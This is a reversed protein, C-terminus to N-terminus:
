QEETITQQVKSAGVNIIDRLYGQGTVMKDIMENMISEAANADVGKYWSKATLVQDIFVSINESEKQEDILARLATPKNTRNLYNKVNDAKTAFQLFDWAEETAESKKSVAELWYNAYNVSQPNGEIQPLHTISFNLKPARSQIVPLMYAYGFMMALKNQVFLDLSNDLQDNWSYVEKAPNAFDTYFRLADQGPNYNRDRFAAPRQHFRVVGDEMMVTGNQMMLVSLIDSSREINNSGGLAVGAQIIEGKNNQKTLKKVDQQFERNWFEPPTSIGANNFLDKNYYLTLTDISLPLGYVSEKFANTNLDKEPVVADGFVVDVFDRKVQAPTVSKTTQPIYVVEKKVSGQIRPFIMTITPPVPALLGKSVYERTWSNHISFIDPGRDAAFAEILKQEYEDFRFKKYEIQINSHM